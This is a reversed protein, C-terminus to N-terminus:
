ELKKKPPPANRTVTAGCDSSGAALGWEFAPINTPASSAVPGADGSTGWVWGVQGTEDSCGKCTRM